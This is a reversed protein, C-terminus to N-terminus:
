TLFQRLKNCKKKIFSFDSKRSTTPFTGVIFFKIKGVPAHLCLMCKLVDWHQLGLNHSASKEVTHNWRRLKRTLFHPFTELCSKKYKMMRRTIWIYPIASLHNIWFMLLSRKGHVGKSRSSERSSWQMYNFKIENEKQFSKSLKSVQLDWSTVQKFKRRLTDVFLNYLTVHRLIKWCCLHSACKQTKM